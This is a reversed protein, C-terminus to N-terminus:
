VSGTSCARRRSCFATDLHGHGQALRAGDDFMGEGLAAFGPHLWKRHDHNIRDPHSHSQGDVEVALKAEACYFDLVYPPIPHQRRFRLGGLKEGRLAQWVAHPDYAPM